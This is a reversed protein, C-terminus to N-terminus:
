NLKIRTVYCFIFKVIHKLNMCDTLLLGLQILVGLQSRTAEIVKGLHDIQDHHNSEVNHEPSHGHSLVHPRRLLIEVVPYERFLGRRQWDLVPCLCSECLYQADLETQFFFKKKSDLIPLIRTFHPIEQLHYICTSTVSIIWFVLLISKINVPIISYQVTRVICHVTSSVNQLIAIRLYM